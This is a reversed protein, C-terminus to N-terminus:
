QILVPISAHSACNDSMAVTSLSMVRVHDLATHPAAAL